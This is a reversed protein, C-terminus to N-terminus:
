LSSVFDKVKTQYEEKTMGGTEIMSDLVDGLEDFAIDHHYEKTTGDKEGYIRYYDSGQGQLHYPMVFVKHM